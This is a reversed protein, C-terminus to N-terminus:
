SSDFIPFRRALLISLTSTLRADALSIASLRALSPTSHLTAQATFRTVPVTAAAGYFLAKVWWRPYEHPVVTAMTWAFVDVVATREYVLGWPFGGCLIKGRRLTM